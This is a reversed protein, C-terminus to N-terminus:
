SIRGKQRQADRWEKQYARREEATPMNEYAVHNPVYGKNRARFGNRGCVPCIPIDIGPVTPHPIWRAEKMSGPCANKVAM